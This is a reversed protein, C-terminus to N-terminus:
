QSNAGQVRVARDLGLSGLRVACDACRRGRIKAAHVSFKQSRWPASTLRGRAVPTAASLLSM